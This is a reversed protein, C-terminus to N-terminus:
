KFFSTFLKKGANYAAVVVITLTITGKSDLNDVLKKGINGFLM